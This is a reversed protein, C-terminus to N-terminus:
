WNEKQSNLLLEIEDNIDSWYEYFETTNDWDFACPLVDFWRSNELYEEFSDRKKWLNEDCEYEYKISDYLDEKQLYEVIKKKYLNDIFKDYEDSIENEFVMRHQLFERNIKRFYHQPSDNVIISQLEEMTVHTKFFNVQGYKKLIRFLQKIYVNTIM